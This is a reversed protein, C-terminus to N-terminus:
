TMVESSKRGGRVSDRLSRVEFFREDILQGPDIADDSQERASM